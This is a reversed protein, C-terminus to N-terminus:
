ALYKRLPEWYHEEWGSALHEALGRPFGTHDFVLKTEAGAETLEFKVISYIGPHWDVVRWAQVLREGPVLEVHRGVIHGGFIAFPGGIEGAIEAAKSGPPMAQMAGSLEVVKAFQRAETLAEYVRKRSARFMPEQHIAEESHMIDSGAACVVRIPAGMLGAIAGAVLHRRTTNSTTM